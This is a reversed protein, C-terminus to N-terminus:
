YNLGVDNLYSLRSIIETILRNAIQKDGKELELHKFFHLAEKISFRNFKSISLGGVKVYNAYDEIQRWPM